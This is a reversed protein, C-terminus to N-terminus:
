SPIIEVFDKHTYSFGNIDVIHVWGKYDNVENVVIKKEGMLVLTDGVKPLSKRFENINM